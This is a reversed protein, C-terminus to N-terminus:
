LWGCQLHAPVRREADPELVAHRQWVMRSLFGVVRFHHLLCPYQIGSVLPPARAPEINSRSSPRAPRCMCVVMAWSHGLVIGGAVKGLM